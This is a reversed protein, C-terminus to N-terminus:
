KCHLHKSKKKHSSSSNQRALEMIVRINVNGEVVNETRPM